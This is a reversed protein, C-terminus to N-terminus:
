KIVFFPESQVFIMTQWFVWCLRFKRKKENPDTEGWKKIRVEAILNPGKKEKRTHKKRAIPPDPRKQKKHTNIKGKKESNNFNPDSPFGPFLASMHLICWVAISEKRVCDLVFRFKEGTHESQPRINAGLLGPRRGCQLRLAFPSDALLWLWPGLDCFHM